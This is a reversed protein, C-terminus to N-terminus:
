RIRICRTWYFYNCGASGGGVTIYDTNINYNDANAIIWRLAAKADRHTPYMAYIQNLNSPAGEPKISTVWYADHYYLPNQSNDMQFTQSNGCLSIFLGLLIIAIHILNKM